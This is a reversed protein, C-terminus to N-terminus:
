HVAPLLAHCAACAAARRLPLAGAFQAYSRRERCGPAAPLITHFQVVRPMLLRQLFRCCAHRQLLRSLRWCCVRQKAPLSADFIIIIFFPEAAISSLLRCAPSLRSHGPRRTYRCHFNTAAAPRAPQEHRRDRRVHYLLPQFIFTPRRRTFTGPSTQRPAQAAFLLM